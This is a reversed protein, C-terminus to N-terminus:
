AASFCFFHSLRGILSFKLLKSRLMLFIKGSKLVTLFYFIFFIYVLVANKISLKFILLLKLIYLIPLHLCEAVLVM